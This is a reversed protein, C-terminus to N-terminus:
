HKAACNAKFVKVSFLVYEDEQDSTMRFGACYLILTRITVSKGKLLPLYRNPFIQSVYQM